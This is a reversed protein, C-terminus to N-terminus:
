CFYLLLWGSWLSGVTEMEQNRTHNREEEGAFFMNDLDEFPDVGKMNSRKHLGLPLTASETQLRKFQQSQPAPKVLDM